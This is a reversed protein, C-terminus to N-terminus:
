FRSRISRLAWEAKLDDLTKYQSASVPFKRRMPRGLPVPYAGVNGSTTGGAGGATTQEERRNLLAEVDLTDWWM